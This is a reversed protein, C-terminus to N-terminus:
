NISGSLLINKSARGKPKELISEFLTFLPLFGGGKKRMVIPEFLKYELQFSNKPKTKQKQEQKTQKNIKKLYGFKLELYCFM